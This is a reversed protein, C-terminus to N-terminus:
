AFSSGGAHGIEGREEVGCEAKGGEAGILFGDSAGEEVAAVREQDHGGSGAFGEAVLKGGDSASAGRQDDAREDRQHVVLGGLEGGGAQADGADVGVEGAVIGALGAAVVEVAREVKEEDGGLPHADGAEGLHEGAALWRQDGDVFGMADADPTV